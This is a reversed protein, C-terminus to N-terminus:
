RRSSSRASGRTTAPIASCTPARAAAGLAGGAGHVPPDRDDRQLGLADRRRTVAERAGGTGIMPSRSRCGTASAAGVAEVLLDQRKQPAAFRTAVVIDLGPGASPGAWGAPVRGVTVGIDAVFSSARRSGSGPRPPRAGRDARALEGLPLQDRRRRQLDRAYERPAPAPAAARARRALRPRGHAHRDGHRAARRTAARGAGPRPVGDRLLWLRLDPRPAGPGFVGDRVRAWGRADLAAGLRGGRAPCGAACGARAAGPAPEARAAGRGRERAFRRPSPCATPACRPSPAGPPRARGAGRRDAADLEGGRRRPQQLFPSQEAFFLLQMAATGHTRRLAPAASRRPADFGIGGAKGLRRGAPPGRCSRPMAAPGIKRSPMWRPPM